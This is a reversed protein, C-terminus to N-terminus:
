RVWTVGTISDLGLDVFRADDEVDEEKMNLEEALLKKLIVLISSFQDHNQSNEFMLAGTEQIEPVVAENPSQHFNEQIKLLTKGNKVFTNEQMALERKYTEELQSRLTNTFQQKLAMLTSRPIQAIREALKMASDYVENRAVVHMLMGKKSLENGTYEQATFLVEKSLDVGLQYPFILTSGAGPTFGFSMFRTSYISEESFLILDSSMGFTWGAGIGHGQMASIVPIKCLLPLEYIPADSYRAVGEQIALLGEKTGGSSFYSDYGTLIVVKYLPTE